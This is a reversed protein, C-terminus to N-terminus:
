TKLERMVLFYSISSKIIQFIHDNKFIFFDIEFEFSHVFNVRSFLDLSCDFIGCGNLRFHKQARCIVFMLTKQHQIPLDMWSVNLYIFEGVDYSRDTFKESFLCLFFLLTLHFGLVSLNFIVLAYFQLNQIAQDMALLEFVTELICHSFEFFLPVTM